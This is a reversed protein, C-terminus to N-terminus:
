EERMAVAPQSQAARYAPYIGALLSAAVAFVVASLLVDPATQMDIQWGFARRNIVKILIWAMVIGLPVAALGSLLGIVATQGTIMSGVQRPTM